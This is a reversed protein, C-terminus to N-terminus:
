FACALKITYYIENYNFRNRSDFSCYKLVISIAKDFTNINFYLEIFDALNRNIFQMFKILSLHKKFSVLIFKEIPFYLKEYLLTIMIFRAYLMILLQNNSVNHIKNLNFNSKWTKFICEIRWRLSYLIYIEKFSFNNDEITTIFINWSLLKLLEHSPNARSDKKAKMRRLNAVEERIPAAILRLKFKKNEGILVIIDLKGLLKLKDLLNIEKGTKPDYFKTKHKYRSIIDAGNRKIDMISKIVFYGRDRLVLDNEQVEIQQTAKQDNVSYPDISFSIFKGSILDFVGQIRANCVSKIQNKSGKFIGFLKMPLKIITSDQIIIRDFKIKYESVISLNNKKSMIYALIRKFFGVTEKKTRYFYAQRSADCNNEIAHKTALDNYSVTGKIAELCLHSLYHEPKIKKPVRKVFGTEIAIKRIESETLESCLNQFFYNKM